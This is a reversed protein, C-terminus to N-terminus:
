LSLSAPCYLYRYQHTLVVLGVVVVMLETTRLVVLGMTVFVTTVGAPVTFTSNSIFFKHNLNKATDTLAFVPSVNNFTDNKPFVETSQECSMLLFSLLFFLSKIRKM